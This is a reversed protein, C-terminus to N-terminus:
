EKLVSGKLGKRLLVPFIKRMKESNEGDAMTGPM